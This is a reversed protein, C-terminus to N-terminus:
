PWYGYYDVDIYALAIKHDENWKVAPFTEAFFGPVVTIRHLDL